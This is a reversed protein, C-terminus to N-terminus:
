CRPCSPLRCRPWAARVESWQWLDESLLQGEPGPRCWGCHVSTAQAPTSRWCMPMAQQKLTWAATNKGVLQEAAQGTLGYLAFDATADSLKCQARLVFMSLRKLTPALLSRDCILVIEDASRRFGIFSALMRGKATCFAALRAQDFKLLAFDNSLQGHLFSAADAGVARIVGLHSIPTIGNLPLTKPQTM